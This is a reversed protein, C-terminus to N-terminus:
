PFQEDRMLVHAGTITGDDASIDRDLSTQHKEQDHNANERKERVCVSVYVRRAMGHCALACKECM